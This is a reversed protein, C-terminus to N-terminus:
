REGELNAAGLVEAWTRLRTEYLRESWALDLLGLASIIFLELLVFCEVARGHEAARRTTRPRARLMWSRVFRQTRAECEGIVGLRRTTM